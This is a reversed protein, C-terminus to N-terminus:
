TPYSATALNAYATVIAGSGGVLDAETGFCYAAPLYARGAPIGGPYSHIPFGFAATYGFTGAGKFGKYYGTGLVGPGLPCAVAATGDAKCCMLVEDTSTAPSTYTRTAGTLLHVWKQTDFSPAADFNPCYHFLPIFSLPLAAQVTPDNPVDVWTEWSIIHDNGGMGFQIKQTTITEALDRTNFCPHGPVLPPSQNGRQWYAPKSISTFGTGAADNLGRALINSTVLFPLQDNSSGSDTPSWQQYATPVADQIYYNYGVGVGVAYANVFQIGNWSLSNVQTPDGWTYSVGPPARLCGLTATFGGVTKSISIEHDAQWNPYTVTPDDTIVILDGPGQFITSM